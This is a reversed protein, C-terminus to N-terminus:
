TNWVGTAAASKAYESFDRPERGLVRQVGDTTHSNRGDLVKTFLEMMLSIIDEPLEAQQLGYSFQETSIYHYRVDQGSAKSIEETAEAFTLSRPGSLEYLQGIHKPNIITEVAVDAIDEVDIFPEKVNAVPLAIIGSLVYDLLFHESFNQAFWSCRLITWDAGSAKLAEESRQAEEEGRGSLLVLRKVGKEVALNAFSGVADAAGPAALDPYYTIYVASAGELLPEWSAQNNWDFSPTGSRSAIRVPYGLASLRNAVRRGTKGTGGLILIPKQNGDGTKELRKKNVNENKMENM